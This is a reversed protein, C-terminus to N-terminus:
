KLEFLQDRYRITVSDRLVDMLQYDGLSEGKKVFFTERKNLDEIMAVPQDAWDIGVLKLGRLEAAGAGTDGSVIRNADFINKATVPSQYYELSELPVMQERDPDPLALSKELVSVSVTKKNSLITMMFDLAMFTWLLIIFVLLGRNIQAIPIKSWELKGGKIIATLQMLGKALNLALEKRGQTKSPKGKTLLTSEERSGEGAQASRIADPDGDILKLLRERDDNSDTPAM